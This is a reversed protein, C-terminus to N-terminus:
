LCGIAININDHNGLGLLWIDKIQMLVQCFLMLFSSGDVASLCM